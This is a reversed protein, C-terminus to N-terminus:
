EQLRAFNSGATLYLIGCLIFCFRFGLNSFLHPALGAGIVAFSFNIAWAWPILQQDINSLQMMGIPFFAGLVVGFLGAYCVCFLFRSVFSTKMVANLSAPLALSSLATLFFIILGAIKLINKLHHRQSLKGTILSGLGVAILLTPIIISIAYIPNGLTIQLNSIFLMELLMFTFGLVAFYFIISILHRTSLNNKKLNNTGFALLPCLIFILTGMISISFASHSLAIASPTEPSPIFTFHHSKKYYQYFFPNDDTSPTVSYPYEKALAPGKIPDLWDAAFQEYFGRSERLVDLKTFHAQRPLVLGPVYRLDYHYKQSWDRLAMKEDLSFPTGKKAIIAEYMREGVIMIHDKPNNYRLESLVELLTVFIKMSERPPDFGPLSIVLIGNENLHQFYDRFAEKTYLFNEALNYAGGALATFSAVGTLQIADFHDKTSAIYSRGDQNIFSVETIDQSYFTSLYSADANEFKLEGTLTKHIVPNVDVGVVRKAGAQIGALTEIGGGVGIICVEPRNSKLLFSLYYFSGELLDWDRSGKQLLLQRAPTVGDFYFHRGNLPKRNIDSFRLPIVPHTREVDVRGLATWQRSIILDPDYRPDKQALYRTQSFTHPHAILIMIAFAPLITLLLNVPKLKSYFIFILLATFVECFIMTMSFHSSFYSISFFMILCGWAAGLLDAFYFKFYSHAPAVFRFIYTIMFGSFFFPLTTLIYLISWKTLTAETNTLPLSASNFYIYFIFLSSFFLFSTAGLVRHPPLKIKNKLIALLSASAGAGLMTLNLIIHVYHFLLKLSFLRILLLEFHLAAMSILFIGFLYPRNSKQPATM